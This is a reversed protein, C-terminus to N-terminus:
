LFEQLVRERGADCLGVMVSVCGDEDVVTGCLVFCLEREREQLCPGAMRWDRLDVHVASRWAHQGQLRKKKRLQAMYLHAIDRGYVDRDMSVCVNVVWGGAM